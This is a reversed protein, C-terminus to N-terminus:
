QGANSGSQVPVMESLRDPDYAKHRVPYTQMLSDLASRARRQIQEQEWDAAARKRIEDFDPSRAPFTELLKVVQWGRVSPIAAWTELPASEVQAIFGDDFAAVLQPRPRNVFSLMRMDATKVPEGAAERAAALEAQIRAEEETGDLGIVRFSVRPPFDYRNGQTELWAKLTEDDPPDVEIGSYILLRMRQILRERMMEDGHDLELARAERFLTENIVFRDVLKQMEAPEPLRDESAQFIGGLRAYVTDNVVIERPDVQAPATMRDIGFIVLGIILFQVLPESGFKRLKEM